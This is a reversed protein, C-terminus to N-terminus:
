QESVCQPKGSTTEALTSPSVTTSVVMVPTFGQQKFTDFDRCEPKRAERLRKMFTVGAASLAPTADQDYQASYVKKKTPLDFIALGRPSPGTGQDLVLRDGEIGILWYSDAGKAIQIDGSQRKYVCAATGASATGSAANSDAGPRARVVIDEGADAAADRAFVLYSASQACKTAAAASAPGAGAVSLAIFLGLSGFRAAASTWVM